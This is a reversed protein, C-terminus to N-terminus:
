SCCACLRQPLRHRGGLRSGSCAAARNSFAVHARLPTSRAQPPAHADPEGPALVGLDSLVQTAASAFTTPAAPASAAQRSGGAKSCRGLLARLTRAADRRAAFCTLSVPTSLTACAGRVGLGARSLQESCLRWHCQSTGSRGARCSADSRQAAAPAGRAYRAFRAQGGFLRFTWRGDAPLASLTATVARWVAWAGSLPTGDPALCAADVLVALRTAGDM